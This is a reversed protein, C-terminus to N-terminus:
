VLFTITGTEGPKDRLTRTQIAGDLRLVAASLCRSYASEGNIGGRSKVRLANSIITGTLSLPGAVGGLPLLVILLLLRGQLRRVRNM